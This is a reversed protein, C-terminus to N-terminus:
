FNVSIRCNYTIIYENLLNVEHEEVVVFTLHAPVVANLRCVMKLIKRKFSCVGEVKANYLMDTLIFRLFNFRHTPRSLSKPKQKPSQIQSVQRTIPIFYFLLNTQNSFPDIVSKASGQVSRHSLHRLLNLTNM